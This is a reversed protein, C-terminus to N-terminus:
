GRKRKQEPIIGGSKPKDFSNPIRENGQYCLSLLMRETIKNVTNTSKRGKEMSEFNTSRVNFLSHQYFLDTLLFTTYGPQM